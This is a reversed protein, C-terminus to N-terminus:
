RRATRKGKATVLEHSRGVWQLLMEFEAQNSVRANVWSFRAMYPAPRVFPLTLAEEGEEPTLKLSVDIGAETQGCLAFMKGNAAKYVTTEAGFPYEERADPFAMAFARFQAAFDDAM